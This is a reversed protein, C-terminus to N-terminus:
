RSVGMSRRMNNLAKHLHSKVTGERCGMIKATERISLKEYYRLVLAERQRDPLNGIFEQLNPPEEGNTPIQPQVSMELKVKDRMILERTRKRM